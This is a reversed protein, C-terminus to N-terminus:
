IRGKAETQAPQEEFPHWPPLTIRGLGIKGPNERLWLPRVPGGSRDRRRRKPNRDVGVFPGPWSSPSIGPPTAIGLFATSNVRRGPAALWRPAQSRQRPPLCAHPFPGILFPPGTSPPLFTIRGAPFWDRDSCRRPWAACDTAKAVAKSAGPSHLGGLQCGGPRRGRPWAGRDPASASCKETAIARQAWSGGHEYPITLPDGDPKM